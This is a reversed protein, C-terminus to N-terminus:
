HLSCDINYMKNNRVHFILGATPCQHKMGTYKAIGTSVISRSNIHKVKLCLPIQSPVLYQIIIIKGEFLDAEYNLYVHVTDEQHSIQKTHGLM